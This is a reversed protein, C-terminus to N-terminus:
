NLGINYIDMRRNKMIPLQERISKVKETEIEQILIGEKEDLRAIIDGWPSTIISNGYSVYSGNVDRAPACGIMFLQNDLARARFSIEWHAPGTTMNFAAPVIIMEAGELSMLRSWEIFRIDFCIQVGIRGYETDIVTLSDGATFTDSEFFRQGGKVDIDFLHVKRHRGIQEGDKSFIFSTNYIKDGEEEPISGGVLVVENERAAKSLQSWLYGKSTIFFPYLVILISQLQKRSDYYESRLVNNIRKEM